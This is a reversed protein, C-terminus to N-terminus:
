NTFSCKKEGMISPIQMSQSVALATSIDIEANRSIFLCALFPLAAVASCLM